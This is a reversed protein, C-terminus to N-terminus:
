VAGKGKRFKPHKNHVQYFYSDWGVEEKPILRRFEGREEARDLNPMAYTTTTLYFAKAQSAVFEDIEIAGTPCLLTCFCCHPQCDQGPLKPPDLSLDINYILCNDMCLRCRPYRCLEPHFKFTDPEEITDKITARLEPTDNRDKPPKGPAKPILGTEGERIRLSREVMQRGFAEAEALDIEDPHGATPYPDPHWPLFCDGYWHDWGIVVLGRRKMKRVISYFFMEPITGHTCFTFAHKGGVSWMKNVFKSVNLPEWRFVPSGIGILDYKYLRKPDADRLELLDCNGAAAIVGAQVRKAIKETNGTQSFYVICSRM